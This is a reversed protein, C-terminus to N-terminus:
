ENKKVMIIKEPDLLRHSKKNTEVYANGYINLDILKLNEFEEKSVEHGNKNIYKM